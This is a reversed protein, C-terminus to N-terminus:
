IVLSTTKFSIFTQFHDNPFSRKQFIEVTLKDVQWHTLKSTNQHGSKKLVCHMLFLCSCQSADQNRNEFGATSVYSVFVCIVVCIFVVM